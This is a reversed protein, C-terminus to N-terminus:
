KTKLFTPALKTWFVKYNWFVKLLAIFAAENKFATRDLSLFHPFFNTILKRNIIHKAAVPIDKREIMKNLIFSFNEGFVKFLKYGGTNGAKCALITNEIVYSPLGKFVAPIIWDILLLFTGNFEVPNISNKVIDKNIINGSIFTFWYNVRDVFALPDNYKTYSAESDVFSELIDSEKNFWANSLYLIGLDEKKLLNMIKHLSNPLLFDDDSLMWMYKTFCRQYLSFFNGDMGVSEKHKVYDIKYGLSIYKDIVAETNDISANDSVQIEILESYGEAQSLVENLCRDLYEARNYTPIGITLIKNNMVLM